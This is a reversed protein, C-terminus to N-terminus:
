RLSAPPSDPREPLRVLGALQSVVKEAPGQRDEERDQVHDEHM